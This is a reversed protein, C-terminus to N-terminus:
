KFICNSRRCGNSILINNYIDRVTVDKGISTNYKFSGFPTSLRTNEDNSISKNLVAVFDADPKSKFSSPSVFQAIQEDTFPTYEVTKEIDDLNTLFLKNLKINDVIVKKDEASMRKPLVIQQGDVDIEEIGRERFGLRNLIYSGVNAEKNIINKAEALKNTTPALFLKRNEATDKINKFNKFLQLKKDYAAIDDEILPNVMTEFEQLKDATLSSLKSKGLERQKYLDYQKQKYANKWDTDTSGMGYTKLMQNHDTWFNIGAQFQKSKNDIIGINSNVFSDLRKKAQRRLLFNAGQVGLMLGTFIKARKEQKKSKKRAQALLSEGLQEISM